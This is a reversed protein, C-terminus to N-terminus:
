PAEEPSGARVRFVPVGDPGLRADIHSEVGQAGIRRMLALAQEDDPFTGLTRGDADDPEYPDPGGTHDPPLDVARLPALQGGSGTWGSWSTVATDPERCDEFAPLAEEAPALSDAAAAQASDPVLAAPAGPAAASSAGVLLGAAFLLAAALTAGSAVALAGGRTLSFTYRM